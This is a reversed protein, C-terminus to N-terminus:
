HQRLLSGFGDIAAAEGSCRLTDWLLAQMSTVVPRGGAAEELEDIFGHQLMRLASCSVIVGDFEEEREEERERQGTCLKAVEDRITTPPVSWIEFDTSLGLGPPPM